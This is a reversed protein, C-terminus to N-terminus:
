GCSSTAPLENWGVTGGPMSAVRTFGLSELELAARDSRTGSHCIVVIADDHKWTAAARALTGLPVSEAGPVHGLPGTYEEPERVDILRLLHAHDRVWPIPAQLPGSGVRQLSSWPDSQSGLNRNAPVAVDILRPYPLGLNDMLEIFAAESRGGGVRANHVREEGISSATQGTYDHGPYVTFADDLTFLQSHIARYLDKASGGQFDTRGCGRILLTDGTFVRQNAADVFCVAGATHGPTHRVELDLADIQLHDGHNLYRDAGRASCSTPYAVQCGTRERLTAAATVHDAHVHTDLVWALTLGLQEILRLDRDVQELVPDIIVARRTDPDAILYTYTSSTADFLQRFM